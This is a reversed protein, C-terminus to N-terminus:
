LGVRIFGDCLSEFYGARHHDGIGLAEKEIEDQMGQVVRILVGSGLYGIQTYTSHVCDREGMQSIRALQAVLFSIDFYGALFRAIESM